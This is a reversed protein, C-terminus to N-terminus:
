AIDLTFMVIAHKMNFHFYFIIKTPPAGTTCRNVVPTFFNGGTTHRRHVPSQVPARGTSRRVGRRRQVPAGGASRRVLVESLGM